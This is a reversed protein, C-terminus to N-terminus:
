EFVVVSRAVEGAFMARFGENIEDLRLRRTVMEDLKLRGQQYLDLIRLLDIRSRNSGMYSGQIRREGVVMALGDIEMPRAPPMIGVITALGGFALSNFAMTALSPVGVAEFSYNVGGGSIEIVAQVADDKEANVMHTAGFERAMELKNPLLDVAIVQRAGALRAGQIVSLGVGGCGFVAVSSGAEVKASNIAAGVGTTVGCGVLAAVEMPISDPIKVASSRHILMKEAFSGIGVMTAVPKGAQSVRPRDAPGRQLGPDKCRNTHGTICQDCNGCFSSLFAIIHDGPTVHTVNSGVAEVIGAPEHGLIIPPREEGTARDLSHADSHCLGTAATRVLVEDPGPADVEVDEITLTKQGRFIAAKM